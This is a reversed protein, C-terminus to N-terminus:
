SILTSLATSSTALPGQDTPLPKEPPDPPLNVPSVLASASFHNGCYRATGVVRAVAVAAAVEDRTVRGDVSLWLSVSM